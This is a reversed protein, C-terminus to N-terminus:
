VRPGRGRSTHWLAAIEVERAEENVRFYVYYRVRPLELRRLGPVRRDRVDVGLKGGHLALRDIADLVDAALAEPAKPRNASWWELIRAYEARAAGSLYVRYMPSTM